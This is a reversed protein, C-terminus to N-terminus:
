QEQRRIVIVDGFNYCDIPTYEVRIFFDKGQRYAGKVWRTHNRNIRIEMVCEGQTPSIWDVIGRIYNGKAALSLREYQRHLPGLKLVVKTGVTLPKPASAYPRPANPNWIPNTDM